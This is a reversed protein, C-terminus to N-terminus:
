PNPGRAHQPVHTNADLSSSIFHARLSTPQVCTRHSHTTQLIVVKGSFQLIPLMGKEKFIMRSQIVEKLETTRMEKNAQM